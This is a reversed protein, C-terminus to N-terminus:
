EGWSGSEDASEPQQDLGPRDDTGGLREARMEDGRNKMEAEDVSGRSGLKRLETGPMRRILEHAETGGRRLRARRRRRSITGKPYRNKKMASRSADSIERSEVDEKPPVVGKEGRSRPLHRKRSMMRAPGASRHAM